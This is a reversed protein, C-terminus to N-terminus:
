LPLRLDGDFEIVLGDALLSDLARESQLLDRTPGSAAAALAAARTVPESTDRLLAMIRGRVQRDSGNFTAQRPRKQPANDPYGAGRWECWAAVPCETCRPARPTCVVAGLEMAAANCVQAATTDTPLLQEMDELDSARPMGAAARGHMLRALVRRTNTDVVPHRDGFAFAAVARATYPGVGTLQLLTDIDRPVEDAHATAIETAAQHLWLARRPYGLRDWARVAEGPSDAALASPRPWRTMWNLYRPLVRDVQTQQLMFESVLVGWPGATTERWPLPRASRAFWANLAATMGHFRDNEETVPSDGEHASVRGTYYANGPTCARIVPDSSTPQLSHFLARVANQQYVLGFAPGAVVDDGFCSARERRFFDPMRASEVRHRGAQQHQPGAWRRPKQRVEDPKVLGVECSNPEALCGDSVITLPLGKTESFRFRNGLQDPLWCAEDGSRCSQGTRNFLCRARDACDFYRTFPGVIPHASALLDIQFTPRYCHSLEGESLRPQHLGRTGITARQLDDINIGGDTAARARIHACQRAIETGVQIHSPMERCQSASCHARECDSLSHGVVSQGSTRHIATGQSVWCVDCRSQERHQADGRLLFHIEPVALADPEVLPLAIVRCQNRSQRGATSQDTEDFHLTPARPYDCIERHRLM